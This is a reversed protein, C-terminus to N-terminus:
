SDRPVTRLQVTSRGADAVLRGLAGAVLSAGVGAFPAPRPPAPAERDAQERLWGALAEHLQRADEYDLGAVVSVPNMEASLYLVRGGADGLSLLTGPVGVRSQIRLLNRLTM